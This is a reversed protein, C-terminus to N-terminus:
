VVFFCRSFPMMEAPQDWDRAELGGKFSAGTCPNSWVGPTSTESFSGLINLLCGTSLFSKGDGTVSRLRKSFRSKVVQM